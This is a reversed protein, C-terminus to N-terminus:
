PDPPRHVGKSEVTHRLLINRAENVKEALAQTGGADPHTRAILRRHAARIAADDATDDLGLLARADAIAQREVANMVPAPTRTRRASYGAAILLPVAGVVPRGRAIMVAGIIAIGVMIGDLASMRQLRGTLLMWGIVAVLLVGLGGM